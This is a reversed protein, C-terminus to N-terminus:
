TAGGFTGRTNSTLKRIKKLNNYKITHVVNIEALKKDPWFNYTKKLLINFSFNTTLGSLITKELKETLADELNLYILLDDRTNTVILDTIRAEGSHAPRGFFLILSLIILLLKKYM